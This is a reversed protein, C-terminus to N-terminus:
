KKNKRAKIFGDIGNWVINIILIIIIWSPAQNWVWDVTHYADSGVNILRAEVLENM